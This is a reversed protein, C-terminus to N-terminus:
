GLNLIPLFQEAINSAYIETLMAVFIAFGIFFLSAYLIPRKRIVDAEKRINIVYSLLGYIVLWFSIAYRHEPHGLTATAAPLLIILLSLLSTKKQVCSAKFWGRLEKFPVDLIRRKSFGAIFFLM